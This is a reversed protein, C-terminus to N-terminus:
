GEELVIIKSVKPTTANLKNFVVVDNKVEAHVATVHKMKWTNAIHRAWSPMLEADTYVKIEGNKFVKTEEYDVFVCIKTPNNFFLPTQPNPPITAWELAEHILTKLKSLDKHTTTALCNQSIMRSLTYVSENFDLNIDSILQLDANTMRIRGIKSKPPSWYCVALPCGYVNRLSTEIIMSVLKMSNFIEKGQNEMAKLFADLGVTHGLYRADEEGLKENNLAEPVIGLLQLDTAM